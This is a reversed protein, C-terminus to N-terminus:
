LEPLRGHELFFSLSDVLSIIKSKDEGLENIVEEAMMSDAKKRGINDKITHSVELMKSHPSNSGIQM